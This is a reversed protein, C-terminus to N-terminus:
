ARESLRVYGEITSLARPFLGTRNSNNGEASLVEDRAVELVVGIHDLLQGNFVRNYLAIDGVQPQTTNGPQFIAESLAWHHWAPVAALTYRYTAVPKPPFQFGAQLCCYYVFAGCWHFGVARDSYKTSASNVNLADRLTSLYPEIAPGAMNSDGARGLAAERRAIEALFRRTGLKQTSPLSV